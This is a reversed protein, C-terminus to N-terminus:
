ESSEVPFMLLTQAGQSALLALGWRVGSFWGTVLGLRSFGGQTHLSAERSKADGPPNVGGTTLNDAVTVYCILM